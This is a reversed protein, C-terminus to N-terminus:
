KFKHVALIGKSTKKYRVKRCFSDQQYLSKQFSVVYHIVSINDTDRVRQNRNLNAMLHPKKLARDRTHKSQRQKHTRTDKYV